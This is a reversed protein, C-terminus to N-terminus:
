RGRLPKIMGRMTSVLWVHKKMNARMCFCAFISFRHLMNIQRQRVGPKVMRMLLLQLLHNVAYHRIRLGWIPLNLSRGFIAATFETNNYVTEIEAKVEIETTALPNSLM